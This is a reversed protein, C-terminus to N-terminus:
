RLKTREQRVVEPPLPLYGGEKAVVAQGERSLVFSLFERIKPDWPKAPDHNVFIYILRSLPYTRDRVTTRTGEVFPGADTEGVALAKLKPTLNRFGAIGIAYPDDEIARVLADAADRGSGAYMKEPAGPPLEVDYSWRGGQFVRHSVYQATGTDEDLGYITIPKDAWDGTLGLEGWNTVNRPAGRKRDHSYLADLQTLSIQQLPNARNVLIAPAVTKAFEDYSGTAVAFGLPEYAFMRKWSTIELRRIERGFVGINATGTYLAGVATSTGKMFHRARIDPHHKAFAQSWMEFLRDGPNDGWAVLEGSVQAEPVYPPLAADRASALPLAM